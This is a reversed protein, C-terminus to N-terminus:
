TRDREIAAEYARDLNWNDALARRGHNGLGEFEAKARASIMKGVARRKWGHVPPWSVGILKLQKATWGGRITCNSTIWFETVKFDMEGGRGARADVAFQRGRM